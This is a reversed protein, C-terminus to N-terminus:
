RNPDQAACLGATYGSSFAWQLNYGGCPGDADLVEGCFYLGTQLRSEMTRPNVEKLSVGGTTLMAKKFGESKNITLPLGECLLSVLKKRAKKELDAARLGKKVGALRCLIESFRSPYSKSLLSQVPSSGSNNQWRLFQTEWREQTNDEHAILFVQKPGNHHIERSLSASLDLVGPGSIGKHTFLVGQKGQITKKGTRVRIVSDPLSLGACQKVWLDETELACLAPLPYVISHGLSKALEYGNYSPPDPISSKGGTAFILKRSEFRMKESRLSFLGNEKRSVSSISNEKLITIKLRSVEDLLAGLIHAAKQSSPFIHFQDPSVTKIGKSNLFSILQQQDFRNLAYRVFPGKNGFSNIFQPMPSTNSINCRGGGTALLKKGASNMKEAITVKAGQSAASIAAMLGSPGAGIVTIQSIMHSIYNFTYSPYISPM